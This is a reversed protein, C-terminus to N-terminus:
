SEPSTTDAVHDGRRRRDAVDVESDPRTRREEVKARLILDRISPSLGDEDEPAPRSEEDDSRPNPHKAMVAVM